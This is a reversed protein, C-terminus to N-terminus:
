AGRGAGRGRSPTIVPALRAAALGPGAPRRARDLRVAALDHGDLPEGAIARVVELARENLLVCELAPEAGRPDHEGRRLEEAPVRTALEFGPLIFGDPWSM